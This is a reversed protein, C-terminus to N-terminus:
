VAQFERSNSLWGSPDGSGWEEQYLVLVRPNGEGSDEKSDRPCKSSEGGPDVDGWKGPIIGPRWSEVKRAAADPPYILVVRHQTHTESLVTEYWGTNHMHKLSCHKYWRTNHKHKLSCNKYWRTNHM